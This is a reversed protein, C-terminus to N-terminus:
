SLCIEIVGIKDYSVFKKESFPGLAISTAWIDRQESITTTLGVINLPAM